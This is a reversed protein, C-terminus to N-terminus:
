YMLCGARCYTCGNSIKLVFNFQAYDFPASFSSVSAPEESATELTSDMSVIDFMQFLVSNAFTVVGGLLVIVVEVRLWDHVQKWNWLEVQECRSTEVALDTQPVHFVKLWSRREFSM